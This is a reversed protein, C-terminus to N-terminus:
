VIYREKESFIVRSVNNHAYHIKYSAVIPPWLRALKVTLIVQPAFYFLPQSRDLAALSNILTHLPLHFEGVGLMYLAYQIQIDCFFHAKYNEWELNSTIVVYRTTAVWNVALRTSLKLKLITNPPSLLFFSNQTWGLSVVSLSPPYLILLISPSCGM